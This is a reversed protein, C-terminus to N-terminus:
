AALMMLQLDAHLKIIQIIDNQLSDLRASKKIYGAAGLTIALGQQELSTSLMFVPINMLSRKKKLEKLCEIGDIKPMNIDMFIYDPKKISQDLVSLAHEGNEAIGFLSLGEIENLAEIFFERDDLDDDILMITDQKIM